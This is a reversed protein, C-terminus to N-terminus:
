EGWRGGGGDEVAWDKGVLGRSIERHLSSYRWDAARQVYGHKVPNFHIYDVHRQLNDEDLILHEWFRRQWIGREGKALRRTSRREGNPVMRSFRTKIHRWRTANDADGDPLRRVCHLHDPLM